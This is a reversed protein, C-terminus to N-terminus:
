LLFSGIQDGSWVLVADETVVLATPAAADATEQCGRQETTADTADAFSTITLGACSDTHHSVVIGGNGVSLATVADASLPQWAANADLVYAVSDCVLATVGGASRLSRANACPTAVPGGPTVISGADTPDVYTSASLVDPYPEWFQGQTFTRLAQLECEAGMSAVIEGEGGAFTSVVSLSRIELYRPTVDTWTEGGDTSRELLPEASACAGAVGRWLVGTGISLFREQSRDYLPAATPTPEPTPSSTGSTEAGFTPVPGAAHEPADVGSVRQMALVVLVVAVIALVAVSGGAVWKASTRDM